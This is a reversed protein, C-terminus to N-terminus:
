KQRPNLGLRGGGSPPSGSQSGPSNLQRLEDQVLEYQVAIDIIDDVDITFNNNRSKQSEESIDTVTTLNNANRMNNVNNLWSGMNNLTITIPQYMVMDGGEDSDEDSSDNQQFQSYGSYGLWNFRNGKNGNNDQRTGQTEYYIVTDPHIHQGYKVACHNCNNIIESSFDFNTYISNYQILKSPLNQPQTISGIIIIITLIYKMYRGAMLLINIRDYKSVVGYYLPSVPGRFVRQTTPGIYFNTFHDTLPYKIIM